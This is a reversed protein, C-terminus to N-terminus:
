IVHLFYLILRIACLCFIVFHPFQPRHTNHADQDVFSRTLAAHGRERTGSGASIIDYDAM